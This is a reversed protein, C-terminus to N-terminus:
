QGDHGWIDLGGQRAGQPRGPLPPCPEPASSLNPEWLLQHLHSYPPGALHPATPSMCMVPGDPDDVPAPHLDRPVGPWGVVWGARPLSAQMGPAGGRWRGRPCAQATAVSICKGTQGGPVSPGQSSALVPGPCSLHAPDLACPQDGTRPWGRGGCPTGGPFSLGQHEPTGIWGTGTLSHGRPTELFAHVCVCVCVCVCVNQSDLQLDSPLGCQSPNPLVPSLFSLSSATPGHPLSMLIGPLLGPGVVYPPCIHRSLTVLDGLHGPPNALVLSSPTQPGTHVM